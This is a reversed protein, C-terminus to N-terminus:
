MGRTCRPCHVLLSGDSAKSGGPREYFDTFEIKLNAAVVPQSLTASARSTGRPLNMTVCPQWKDSYDESKITSVESVPRPTFYVTVTKVFRGRPDNVTLHLESIALRYKLTYFSCFENSAFADKGGDLRGRVYPCVQEPHWKKQSHGRSAPSTRTTTTSSSAAERPTSQRAGHAKTHSSEKPGLPQARLCFVCDALDLRRRASAGSGSELV